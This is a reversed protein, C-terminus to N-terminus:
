VVSRVSSTGFQYARAGAGDRRRRDLSTKLIQLYEGRSALAERRSLNALHLRRNVLVDPLLEIIAGQEAARLFWDTGDGYWLTTNFQGITDFLIRRTLLTQTVYGPMPHSIRHKRFREAEEKLEPIWFNQVYTVSYDLDPRARFRAMQRELKEPDWLDDADLFAVFEGQVLSLGRNRAAAPGANPQWVTRVGKGYGAVVEATGDTSGDDVVIIELPRYTQVLISDLAEKLYRESNYVPVICSILSRNM